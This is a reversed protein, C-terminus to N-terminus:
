TAVTDRDALAVALTATPRRAGAGPARQAAIREWASAADARSWTPVACAALLDALERASQPRDEPKKELCRLIVRDLDPPVDLDLAILPVPVDHLHASCIMVVSAGPFVHRGSLLFYATAGLSYLDTRHDVTNPELISEPAMFYPTGVVRDATSTGLTTTDKVLGFDLVKVVDKEDGRENLMVNAPKIDRHVLGRSHAESLSGCIQLLVHVVRSAPQPGHSRVLEELTIGDLYEMAYYFVGDPTRGYDFVAVTNPHQLSATLQVEREFRARTAPNAASVLKIATPRRLMAHSARYVEGMGGEGIKADLLYQGLQMANRAERRLNYIVHSIVTICAVGVLCWVLLLLAERLAAEPHTRHWMFYSGVALMPLTVLGLVATRFTTSPVLAAYMALTCTIAFLAKLEDRGEADGATSAFAWGWCLVVTTLTAVVDLFLVSRKRSRVLQWAAFTAFAIAVLVATAPTTFVGRLTGDYLTLVIAAALVALGLAFAFSVRLIFIVRQQFEARENESSVPASFRRSRPQM